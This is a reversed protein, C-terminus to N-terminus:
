HNNIKRWEDVAQLIRNKFNLAPLYKFLLFLGLSMLLCNITLHDYLVGNFGGSNKSVQYTGLATVLWGIVISSIARWINVRKSKADFFIPIAFGLVFYGIYGSMYQFEM